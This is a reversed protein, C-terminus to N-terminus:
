QKKVEKVPLPNKRPRGRKRKPQVVEEDSTEDESSEETVEEVTEEEQEEQVEETDTSEEDTEVEEEVAKDETYESTVVEGIDKQLNLLRESNTQLDYIDNNFDNLLVDLRETFSAKLEEDDMGEIQGRLQESLPSVVAEIFDARDVPGMEKNIEDRVEVQLDDIRKLIEKSECAENNIDSVISALKESIDSKVREDNIQVLHEELEYCGSMMVTKVFANSRLDKDLADKDVIIEESLVEGEYEVEDDDDDDTGLDEPIEVEEEVAKNKKVKSYIFGATAAGLAVLGLKILKKKM